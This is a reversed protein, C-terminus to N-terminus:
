AKLLGYHQYGAYYITAGSASALKWRDIQANHLLTGGYSEVALTADTSHGVRRGIYHMRKSTGINNYFDFEWVNDEHETHDGINYGGIRFYAANWLGAVSNGNSGSSQYSYHLISTYTGAGFYADDADNRAYAYLDGGSSHYVGHVILKQTFYKTNTSLDIEISAGNGGSTDSAILEWAGGNDGTVTGSFAVAGSFVSSDTFTTVGKMTTADVTGITASDVISIKNGTPITITSSQAGQIQDTKIIGTM